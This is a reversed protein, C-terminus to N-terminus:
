RPTSPAPDDSSAQGNSRDVLPPRPGKMIEAIMFQIEILSPGDYRFGPAPASPLARELDAILDDLPDRWLAM